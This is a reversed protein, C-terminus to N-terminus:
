KIRYFLCYADSTIVTTPDNIIHYVSDNFLIWENKSNRVFSTYHGGLVNGHHNCVGYLDYVYKDPHYGRVYSSLDLNELPFTVHTHLKHLGQPDFRKLTIVLIKPLTFFSITKQVAEYTGNIENKWSNEGELLEPATFLDFCDYLTMEHSTSLIPLDLMFFQEPKTIHVHPGDLSTLESLYIAYFLDMIESYEQEFVGQFNSLMEISISGSQKTQQRYNENKDDKDDDYVIVTQGGLFFLIQYVFHQLLSFLQKCIWCRQNREQYGDQQEIQNNKNTM